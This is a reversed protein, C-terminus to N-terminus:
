FTGLPRLKSQNYLVLVSKTDEFKTNPNLLNIPIINCTSVCDIQFKVVDKGLPM